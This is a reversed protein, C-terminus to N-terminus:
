SSLGRRLYRQLLCFAAYAGVRGLSIERPPSHLPEGVAFWELRWAHLVFGIVLLTAIMLGYTIAAQKTAERLNDVRWGITVPTDRHALFSMPPWILVVIWTWRATFQLQWIYWVVFAPFLIVEALLLWERLAVLRSNGQSGTSVQPSM